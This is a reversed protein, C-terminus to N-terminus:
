IKGKLINLIKESAYGDGYPCEISEDIKHNLLIKFLGELQEPDPCLWSFDGIGESRETKERCVICPKKFFAAEEQIGGSDTIVLRCKKLISLLNNHELPGCTRLNQLRNTYKM